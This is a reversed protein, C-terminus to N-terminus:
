REHRQYEKPFTQLEWSIQLDKLKLFGLFRKLNSHFVLGKQGIIVKSQFMQSVIGTLLASDVVDYRGQHITNNNM